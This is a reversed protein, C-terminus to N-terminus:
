GTPRMKKRPLGKMGVKEIQWDEGDYEYIPLGLSRIAGMMAATSEGVLEAAKGLSIKQEKFLMIALTRRLARITEKDSFDFVERLGELFEDELSLVLKAM